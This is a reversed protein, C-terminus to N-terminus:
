PSDGLGEKPPNLSLAAMSAPMEDERFGFDVRAMRIIGAALAQRARAHDRATDEDKSFAARLGLEQQSAAIARAQIPRYRRFAPMSSLDVRPPTNGVLILGCTNVFTTTSQYLDRATFTRNGILNRREPTDIRIEDAEEVWGIHRGVLAVKSTSHEYAKYRRRDFDDAM